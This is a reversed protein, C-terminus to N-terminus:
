FDGGVIRKRGGVGRRHNKPASTDRRPKAIAGVGAGNRPAPAFGAGGAPPVPHFEPADARPVFGARVAAASATAVEDSPVESAVASLAVRRKEVAKKLRIEDLNMLAHTLRVLKDEDDKVCDAYQAYAELWLDDDKNLLVELDEQGFSALIGSIKSLASIKAPTWERVSEIYRDVRGSFKSLAAKKEEKIRELMETYSKFDRPGRLNAIKRQEISTEFEWQTQFIKYLGGLVEAAKEVNEAGSEACHM